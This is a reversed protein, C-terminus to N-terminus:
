TATASTAPAAKSARPLFWVAVWIGGAALALVQFLTDFGWNGEIYGLLPLTAALVSFSLLFRLGYIRARNQGSAVKSILYDNIPIQGFAGLMFGLAVVLAPGNNLGPMLAFCLLQLGACGLFVTRPGLHDLLRGVLLQALSAVTFIIFSLSGVATALSDSHLNLSSLMQPIFDTLRTEFIKPLAFTVAQFIMSSLATTLLIILGIRRLSGSNNNQSPETTASVQAQPYRISQWRLILYGVGGLLAAMGPLTYATRWDSQDILYGTLLAACAVGLNGWVGNWAIKMGTKRWRTAILALAVPHYIAAFIGLVTLGLGIQVPSQAQATLMASIGTGFFFVCMLLDRGWRDALWGAPWACLGFAIFGPTAYPVLEAYSMGWELHLVLAAAAAFILLFLHTLFHGLNLLAFHYRDHRYQM